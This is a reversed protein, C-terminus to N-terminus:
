ARPLTPCIPFSVGIVAPWTRSSTSLGCVATEVPAGGSGGGGWVCVVITNGLHKSKEGCCGETKYLVNGDDTPNEPNSVGHCMSELQNVSAATMSGYVQMNIECKEMIPKSYEILSM